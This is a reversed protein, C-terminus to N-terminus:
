GEGGTLTPDFLARTTQGQSTVDHIATWLIFKEFATTHCRKAKWNHEDRNSDENNQVGPSADFLLKPIFAGKKKKAPAVGAFMIMYMDKM